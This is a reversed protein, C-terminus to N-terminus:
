LPLVLLEREDFSATGTNVNAYKATFTNTGATLVAQFMGTYSMRQIVGASESIVRLSRTTDAAITTAGSVACGMYGGQGASSNSIFATVTFIASTGTQLSACVPGTTVLDTFSTSTTTQSGGIVRGITPVREAIANAGTSIFMRGTATAKAAPTELLNDRM